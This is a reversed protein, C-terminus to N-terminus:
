IKQNTKNLLEHNPYVNGVVEVDEPNCSEGFWHSFAWGERNLVFSAFKNSWGVVMPEAHITVVVDGEYIEKGNKDKLSTFQGVTDEEVQQSYYNYCIYYCFTAKIVATEESVQSTILSGYYWKGESRGRFKIERM